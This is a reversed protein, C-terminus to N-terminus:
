HKNTPVSGKSAGEVNPKIADRISNRLIRLTPVIQFPDNRCDRIREASALLGTAAKELSESKRVGEMSQKFRVYLSDFPILIREGEKLLKVVETCPRDIFLSTTYKEFSSFIEMKHAESVANEGAISSLRKFYPLLCEAGITDIAFKEMQKRLFTLHESLGSKSPIRDRLHSLIDRFCGHDNGNPIYPIVNIGYADHYHVCRDTIKQKDVSPFSLIAWRKSDSLGNRHIHAMHRFYPEGSDLSSGVFLFNQSTLLNILLYDLDRNYTKAYQSVSLVCTLPSGVSGHLKLIKHRASFLLYIDDVPSTVEYHPYSREILGDYNTTVITSPCMEGIILDSGLPCNSLDSFKEVILSLVEKPIASSLFEAAIQYKGLDILIDAVNRDTEDPMRTAILKLFERWSPFQAYHTSFGAGVWSGFNLPRSYTSDVIAQFASDYRPISLLEDITTHPEPM